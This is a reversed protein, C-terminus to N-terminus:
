SASDLSISFFPRACSDDSFVEAGVVVASLTPNSGVTGQPVGTKSVPVIPRETVEGRSSNAPLAPTWPLNKQKPNEERSCFAKTPAFREVM